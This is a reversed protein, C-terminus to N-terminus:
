LLIFYFFFFISLFFYIFKFIFFTRGELEFDVWVRSHYSFMERPITSWIEKEPTSPHVGLSFFLLPIKELENMKKKFKTEFAMSSFKVIRPPNIPSVNHLTYHVSFNEKSNQYFRKLSFDYLKALKPDFNEFVFSHETADQTSATIPPSQFIRNIAYNLAIISGEIFEKEVFDEYFTFEMMFHELRKLPNFNNIIDDYLSSRKEIWPFM